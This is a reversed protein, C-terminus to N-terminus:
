RNVKLHRIITNIYERMVGKYTNWKPHAPNSLAIYDLSSANAESVFSALASVIYDSFSRDSLEKEVTHGNKTIWLHRLYIIMQDDEDPFHAEMKGTLETWLTHTEAQRDGAM